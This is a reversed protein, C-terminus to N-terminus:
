NAKMTPNPLNPDGMPNTAHPDPLNPDPLNFPLTSDKKAFTDAKKKAEQRKLEEEVNIGPIKELLLEDSIKNGLSAPLFFNILQDWQQRSIYPLNVKIKKSDLATTKQELGTKKNFIVMAKEATEEFCGTWTIREKSTSSYILDYLDDATARNALLDPLGLYHVPIGTTGSIMKALIIIERELSDVGAVSPQAYRVDGNTCVGKKIKWNMDDLDTQAKKADAYTEFKLWLLPSSFLRDIERLDRLAHDLDDIKSLCKMVKPAAQNPDNIRGGFKAYVFEEAPVEVKKEQDQWSATLYDLYDSPNTAITYKKTTWPIFRVSVMKDEEVWFLRLLIKGEIEGEKAFEQAVTFFLDNYDLFENMFKMEEAGTGREKATITIGESMIFAARLDIINGVQFVGWESQGNYKKSIEEIATDYDQYTNGRYRRSEETLALINQSMQAMKTSAIQNQIKAKTLENQLRSRDQVDKFFTALSM